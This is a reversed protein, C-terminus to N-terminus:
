KKTKICELVYDNTKMCTAVFYEGSVMMKETKRLYEEYLKIWDIVINYEDANYNHIKQVGGINNMFKFYDYLNVFEFIFKDSLINLPFLGSNIILNELASRAYRGLLDDEHSFPLINAQYGKGPVMLILVGNEALNKELKQLIIKPNNIHHLVQKMIIIDFTQEFNVTEILGAIFKIENKNENSEFRAEAYDIMKESADVGYIKCQEVNDCVYKILKGDGCGVELISIGNKLFKQLEGKMPNDSGVTVKALNGKESWISSIDSNFVEKVDTSKFM